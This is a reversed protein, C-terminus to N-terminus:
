HHAIGVFLNSYSGVVHARTRIRFTWWGQDRRLFQGTKCEFNFVKFQNNSLRHAVSLSLSLPPIFLFREIVRPPRKSDDLCRGQRTLETLARARAQDRPPLRPLQYPSGASILALLRSPRGPSAMYLFRSRTGANRSADGRMAENSERAHRRRRRKRARM